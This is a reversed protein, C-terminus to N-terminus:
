DTTLKEDLFRACELINADLRAAARALVPLAVGEVLVDMVRAPIRPQFLIDAVVELWAMIRAAGANQIERAVEALAGQLGVGEGDFCGTRWILVGVTQKDSPLAGLFRRPDLKSVNRLFRPLVADPGALVADCIVTAVTAYARQKDDIAADVYRALLAHKAEWYARDSMAGNRAGFLRALHFAEPTAIFDDEKGPPSLLSKAVAEVRAM